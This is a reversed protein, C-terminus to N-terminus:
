FKFSLKSKKNKMIIIKRWVKKKIMIIKTKLIKNLKNWKNLRKKFYPAKKKINKMIM